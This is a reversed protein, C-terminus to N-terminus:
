KKEQSKNQLNQRSLGECARGQRKVSSLMYGVGEGGWKWQSLVAFLFIETTCINSLM